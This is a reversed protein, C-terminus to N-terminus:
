RKRRFSNVNQVLCKKNKPPDGKAYQEDDSVFMDDDCLKLQPQSLSKQQQRSNTATNANDDYGLAKEGTISGSSFWGQCAQDMIKNRLDREEPSDAFSCGVGFMTFDDDVEWFEDDTSEMNNNSSLDDNKKRQIIRVSSHYEEWAHKLDIFQLHANKYDESANKKTQSAMKKDPHMEHVKQIYASRLQSYSHRKLNDATNDASSVNDNPRRRQRHNHRDIDHAVEQSVSPADRSPLVRDAVFHDQPFLLRVLNERAKRSAIASTVRSSM